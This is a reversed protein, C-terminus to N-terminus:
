RDSSMRRRVWVWPQRSKKGRECWAPDHGVIGAHDVLMDDEVRGDMDRVANGVTFAVDLAKGVASLLKANIAHVDTKDVRWLRGGVFADAVIPENARHALSVALPPQQLQPWRFSAIGGDEESSPPM